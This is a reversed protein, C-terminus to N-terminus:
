KVGQRKVLMRDYLEKISQLDKWTDRKKHPDRLLAAPHYISTIHFRGKKYWNGRNQTIKFDKNIIIKAAVAGLCVLIDPRILRVQTRLYDLCKESEETLPNRNNPPRCKLINTIYINERSLDIAALMKDFLLGAKGVFPKGQQDEYYGPAEGIFMIMSDAAGQGFVAKTRTKGLACKQCNLVTRELEPLTLM